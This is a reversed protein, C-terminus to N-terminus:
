FLYSLCLGRQLGVGLLIRIVFIRILPLLESSKNRTHKGRFNACLLSFFHLFLASSSFGHKKGFEYVLSNICAFNIRSILQVFFFKTFNIERFFNGLTYLITVWRTTPDCPMESGGAHWLAEVASSPTGAM